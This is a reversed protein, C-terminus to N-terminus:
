CIRFGVQKEAVISISEQEVVLRDKDTVDDINDIEIYDNWECDFKKLYVKTNEPIKFCNKVEIILQEFTQSDSEHIQIIKKQRGVTVVGINSL